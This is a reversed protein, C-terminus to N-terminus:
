RSCLIHCVILNVLLPALLALFSAIGTMITIAAFAMGGADTEPQGSGTALLIAFAAATGLAFILVPLPLSAVLVLRRRSIHPWRWDIAVMLLASVIAFGLLILTVISM